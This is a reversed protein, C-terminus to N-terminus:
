QLTRLHELKDRLIALEEMPTLAEYDAKAMIRCSHWPDLHVCIHYQQRKESFLVDVQEASKVVVCEDWDHTCSKMVDYM